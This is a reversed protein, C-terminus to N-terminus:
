AAEALPFLEEAAKQAEVELKLPWALACCACRIFHRRAVGQMLLNLDRSATRGLFVM